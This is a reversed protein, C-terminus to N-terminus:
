KASDYRSFIESESFISFPIRFQQIGIKEIFTYKNLNNFQFFRFAAHNGTCPDPLTDQLPIYLFRSIKKAAWVTNTAIYNM